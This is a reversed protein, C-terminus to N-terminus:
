KDDKLEKEIKAFLEDMRSMKNLNEDFKFHMNPCRYWGEAQLCYNQIYNKVKKLHGLIYSKEKDNFISSDLYVDADYKGKSCDVDVVVLMRLYEDQLSSLAEPILEKLISEVRQVKISKEYQRL